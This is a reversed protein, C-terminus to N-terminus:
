EGDNDTGINRANEMRERLWGECDIDTKDDFENWIAALLALRIGDDQGVALEEILAAVEYGNENCIDAVAHFAEIYNDVM